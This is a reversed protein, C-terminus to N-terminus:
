PVAPEAGARGRPAPTRPAEGAPLLPFQRGDLLSPPQVFCPPAAHTGPGAEPQPEPVEGRGTNACSGFTEVAGLTEARAYANPAIYANGRDYPPRRAYREFSRGDIAAIQPLYHNRPILDGFPEHGALASPPSALFTQIVDQNFNLYSLIPNLEDLFPGLGELVPEAGRLVRELEPVTTRSTRIVAPLDRFLRELDPALDGLDRVTPGLDDAPAKLDNVLPHTDRAFGELRALTVKSEDLFTPFVGFTKRLAEDRSATAAFVDNASVILQRLAGERENIAGFVEGTNRVLGRVALRQEDLTRLLEAGDVAFGPLNGLADNLSEAARGSSARRLEAVWDRFAERTPRDFASFIEDLEVTPEVQSSALRAGDDLDGSSENGPSLAVYSEGLLSKQRLIARTDKPIPAYRPDLEIEVLTRWGREDLQKGKVKGVNVGAMRVDAEKVLTAAEPMAVTFRYGESRLPLSGGFSLWLWMLLGFCTLVFIAMSAMRLPSPTQKIM